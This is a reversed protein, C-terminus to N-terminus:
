SITEDTEKIHPVNIIEEISQGQVISYFQKLVIKAGQLNNLFVNGCQQMSSFPIADQTVASRIALLLEAKFEAAPLTSLCGFATQCGRPFVALIQKFLDQQSDRNRLYYSLLHEITHIVELQLTKFEESMELVPRVMRLDYSFVSIEKVPTIGILHLGLGLRTHDINSSAIQM